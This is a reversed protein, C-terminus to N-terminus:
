FINEGLISRLYIPFAVKQNKLHVNLPPIHISPRTFNFLMKKIKGEDITEESHEKVIREYSSKYYGDIEEVPAKKIIFSRQQKVHPPM